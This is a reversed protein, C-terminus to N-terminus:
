SEQEKADDKDRLVYALAMAFGTLILGVVAGTKTIPERPVGIMAVDFIADAALVIWILWVSFRISM